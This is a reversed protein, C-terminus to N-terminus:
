KVEFGPLDPQLNLYDEREKGFFLFEYKIEIEPCCFHMNGALIKLAAAVKFRGTKM